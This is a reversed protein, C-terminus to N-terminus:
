LKCLASGIFYHASIAFLADTIQGVCWYLAEHRSHHSLARTVLRSRRTLLPLLCFASPLSCLARTGDPSRIVEVVFEPRLHRLELLACSVFAAVLEADALSCAVRLAGVRVCM